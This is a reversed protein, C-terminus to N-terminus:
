ARKEIDIGTFVLWTAAVDGPRVCRMQPRALFDSVIHELVSPDVPYRWHAQLGHDFLRCLRGSMEMRLQSSDNVSVRAMFRGARLMADRLWGERAFNHSYSQGTLAFRHSSYRRLEVKWFNGAVVVCCPGGGHVRM